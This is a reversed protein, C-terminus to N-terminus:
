ASFSHLTSNSDEFYYVRVDNDGARFLQPPVLAVLQTKGLYEFLSGVAGIVGNVAVVFERGVAAADNEVTGWVFAPVGDAPRLDAYAHTRGLKARAAVPAGVRLGDARRGVLAGHRGARFIRWAADMRPAFADVGGARVRHLGEVGDLERDRSRHLLRRPETLGRAPGALSRGDFRWGHPLSLDLLDVVTPLVDILQANRDDSRGQQQRPAKVFLPVWALEHFNADTVERKPQGPLFSMGHDATVVVVSREWMGTQKLRAVLQGILRDTYQLQLLHRQRAVLSAHPADTWRGNVLGPAPEPAVYRRGDPLFRWPVHPLLLHLFNVSRGPAGDLSSLFDAFRGLQEVGLKKCDFAPCKPDADLQKSEERDAAAPEVHATTIDGTDDRPSVMSRWTRASDTLLPGLGGPEKNGGRGCLRQPCMQLIEHVNQRYSTGLLTFLNRPWDVSAPVKDGDPYTGTLIGPLAFPTYWANTTANRYYTSSKGLEAFNPFLQADISGDRTVLSALPLEDFVLLVVSPSSSKAAAGTVVVERGVVQSSVSSAFLFLLAFVLPAPTAFALWLRVAGLGAYAAGFALAVVAAIVMVPVGRLSTTAKLVQVAILAVLVNLTFVHVARAAGPWGTAILQGVLWLAIPPALLIIAALAVVNGPTASRFVFHEGNHGLVDFLPQAVAFGTLALLEVLRRLSERSWGVSRM